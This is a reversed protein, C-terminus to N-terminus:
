GQGPRDDSAGGEVGSRFSAYLSPSPGGQPKEEPEPASSGEALQPVLYSRTRDRRPLAPREANDANSPGSTTIPPAEPVAGSHRGYPNQPQRTPLEERVAPQPGTAYVPQQGTHRGNNFTQPAPIMSTASNHGNVQPEFTSLVSSSSQAATDDPEDDTEGLLNNPIVVHADTGGYMNNELEVGIHHRHALQAVVYLGIRGDRLQADRDVEDPNNLLGNLTIRNRQDIGLGRDRIDIALGATVIQSNISVQTDPESFATANEVLEAILHIVDAVAHGHLTGDVPPIVKVRAYHEVEAVASRLVTYMAVPKSWQRRPMSGGLVALSEAQRRVGTVLHDVAFLGKLLDPDEVQQELEDLRQIARHALSQVRRALNAFVAVGPDVNTQAPESQMRVLAFEVAMQAQRLEHALQEYPSGTVPEGTPWKPAPQQGAQIQEVLHPLERTGQAVTGRLSEIWQHSNRLSEQLRAQAENGAEHIRADVTEALANTRLYGGVVVAISAVIGVALVTYRLEPPPVFVLAVATAIGILATVALSVVVLRQLKARLDNHPPAEPARDTRIAPLPSESM